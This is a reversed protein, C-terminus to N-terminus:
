FPASVDCCMVDISMAGIMKGNMTWKTGLLLMQEVFWGVLWWVSAFVWVVGLMVLLCRWAMDDLHKLPDLVDCVHQHLVHWGWWGLLGCLLLGGCVGCLVSMVGCVRPGDTMPAGVHGDDWHGLTVVM